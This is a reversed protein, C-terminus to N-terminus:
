FVEVIGLRQFFSFLSGKPVDGAYLSQWWAAFSDAVPGLEGFGLLRLVWPALLRLVGLALITAYIPHNRAFDYAEQAARALADAAAKAMKAGGRIANELFHLISEALARTWATTPIQEFLRNGILSPDETTLLIVGATTGQSVLGIARPNTPNLHASYLYPSITYISSM